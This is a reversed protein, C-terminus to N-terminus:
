IPGPSLQGNNQCQTPKAQVLTNLKYAAVKQTHTEARMTHVAQDIDETFVGIQALMLQVQNGIAIVCLQTSLDTM